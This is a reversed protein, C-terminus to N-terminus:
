AKGRKRKKPKGYEDLGLDKNTTLYGLTDNRNKHNLKEQLEDVTYGKAIYEKSYTKRMTHTGINTKIQAKRGAAKIVRWVQQRSRDFMLDNKSLNYKKIREAALM